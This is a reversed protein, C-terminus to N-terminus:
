LTTDIDALNTLLLLLRKTQNIYNPNAHLQYCDCCDRLEHGQGQCHRYRKSPWTMSSNSM